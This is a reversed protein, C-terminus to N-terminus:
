QPMPKLELRVGDPLAIWHPGDPLAACGADVAAEVAAPIDTVGLSFHDIANGCVLESKCENLQIGKHFWLRRNPKEGATRQVTMGFVDQFFSVYWDMDAINLAVHHIRARTMIRGEEMGIM